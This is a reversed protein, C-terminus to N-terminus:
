QILNRFLVCISELNRQKIKELDASSLFSFDRPIADLTLLQVTLSKLLGAADGIDDRFSTQLSCFHYQSVVSKVPLLRELLKASLFSTSSFMESAEENGNILLKCSTPCTLWGKLEATCMVYKVRDKDSLSLLAGKNLCRELDQKLIDPSSDLAALLSTISVAPNCTMLWEEVLDDLQV